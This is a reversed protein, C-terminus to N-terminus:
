TNITTGWTPCCPQLHALFFSKTQSSGSNALHLAAGAWFSYPRPLQSDAHLPRPMTGHWSSSAGLWGAPLALSTALCSPPGQYRHPGLTQNQVTCVGMGYIFLLLKKQTQPKNAKEKEQITFRYRSFILSINKIDMGGILCLHCM